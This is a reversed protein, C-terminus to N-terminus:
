GDAIPRRGLEEFHAFHELQLRPYKVKEIIGALRAVGVWRPVCCIYIVKSASPDPTLGRGDRRLV